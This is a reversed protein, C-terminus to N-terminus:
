EASQLGMGAPLGYAEETLTQSRRPPAFLGWTPQCCSHRLGPGADEHAFGPIDLPVQPKGM